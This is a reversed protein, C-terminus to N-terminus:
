EGGKAKRYQSPSMGMARKFAISFAFPDTYGVRAAISTLKDDSVLLLESARRMRLRMLQHLPSEGTEKLCVRRLNEKSMAALRALQDLTWPRAMDANVAGWLAGLRSAPRHNAKLTQLVTFHVLQVWLEVSAPAIQQTVADWAGELAHRLQGALAPIVKPEAAILGALAPAKGGYIVWGATWPVGRRARYAHTAGPPTIYSEGAKMARWQGDVWVEGEGDLSALVQVEAPHLRRWSFGYATESIGALLIGFRNLAPVSQPGLIRERTNAGISHIECLNNQIHGM